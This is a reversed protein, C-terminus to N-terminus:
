RLRTLTDEGGFLLHNDDIVDAPVALKRPLDFKTKCGAAQDTVTMVVYYQGKSSQIQYPGSYICNEGNGVWTFRGSETYTFVANQSDGKEVVWRGPLTRALSGAAYVRVPAAAHEFPWSWQVQDFVTAIALFGVVSVLWIFVRRM